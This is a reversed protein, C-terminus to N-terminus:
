FQKMSSRSRCRSDLHDQASESHTFQCGSYITKGRVGFVEEHNFSIDLSKACVEVIEVVIVFLVRLLLNSSKM